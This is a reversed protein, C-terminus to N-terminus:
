VEVSEGPELPFCQSGFARVGAAFRAVEASCHYFLIDWDYHMPIVVEPEITAVARLAADVDMTMLGGIPVMLVDPRLGRWADELLLTDGLNLVPRNELSFLLGVAGVGIIFLPTFARGFLKLLPGHQVPVGQISVGAAEVTEGPAVAVVTLGRRRWKEALAPGCVLTANSARAVQPGYEAHDADGHTVLILDAQPWIPRPILSDLRRWHLNQGPDIIITNGDGEVLFANYGYYTLRM